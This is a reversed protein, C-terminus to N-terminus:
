LQAYDARMAGSGCNEIMVDPHRRRLDDLWDLYARCHGLLGAGASEADLDTGVGPVTNYDFKFFVAGFDDILRDVTRTVHERAAPSRFDLLYRGSDCVRVGHRQFFADDPLSQALPSKVGIVEPELWLGLGMGHARITDALGKLGAEGFRNTSAQWEGVMDWWGGDTSDYWGADICFIDAGVRAAGEVLPLEKELRPDGFLTNMYDNYVVLGQTHEFQESRGLERAKAARLARRQLTMEVVSQQWDGAAIAFSVPVSEFDHGEGLETYWHHDQYEPGFASIHLGPDDEGIEWEWPGNHEIQWMVSFDRSQRRSGEVQVIGAPEHVGTSWTSASSMAFRSSSQGPNIVQNRNRVSVDRLPRSRWDNEVAWASDGWFVRSHDIKGCNVRMPVTLNLSSVAEIPLPHASSLRTYTRVASLGPFAEFVSTVVLGATADAHRVAETSPQAAAEAREAAAPEFVRGHPELDAYSAFQVIELRYPEASGEEPESAAASVFRLVSGAVTAILTLRNDQSGTNAARVEVIPRPDRELVTRGDDTVRGGISGMGRGAVNCLRVPSDGATDFLMSVVGNGWELRGDERPCVPNMAGAGSIM